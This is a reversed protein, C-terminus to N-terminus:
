NIAILYIPITPLRKGFVILKRDFAFFYFPIRFLSFLQKVEDLNKPKELLKEKVATVYDVLKEATLPTLFQEYYHKLFNEIREDLYIADKHHSQVIIQIGVTNQAIRKMGTFVIYGLQEKTRLLDFAEDSM